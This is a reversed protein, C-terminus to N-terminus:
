MIKIYEEENELCIGASNYIIISARAGSATSLGVGTIYGNHKQVKDM